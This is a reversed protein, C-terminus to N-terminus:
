RVEVDKGLVLEVVRNLTSRVPKPAEKLDGTVAAAGAGKVVEAYFDPGYWMGDSASFYIRVGKKTWLRAKAYDSSAGRKNFEAIIATAADEQTLWLTPATANPLREIQYKALSSRTSLLKTRPKPTKKPPAPKKSPKKTAVKKTAVKKAVKKSAPKASTTKTKAAASKKKPPAKTRSTKKALTPM